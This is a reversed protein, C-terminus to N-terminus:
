NKIFSFTAATHNDAIIKASYVGQALHHIEIISKSQQIQESLITNGLIDNFVLILQNFQNEIQMDLILFDAAPNPYVQLTFGNMLNEVTSPQTVTVEMSSACENADIVTVTYVGPILDVATETTQGDSWVYTYPAAGSTVNVTATGPGVNVTFVPNANVTIYNDLTLLDEGLGNTVILTVDYVGPTDYYVLPNALNSTGPTGGPFLWSWSTAAISEDLFGIYTGACVETGTAEFAASPMTTVSDFVYFRDIAAEVLHGTAAFDSTIFKVQMNASPTIYDSIKILKNAWNTFTTLGNDLIISSSTIGNTLIMKLSDNPTGTGGNNFWWFDVTLYANDYDTLDFTPSVLTVTGDDVDDSGASGGGNGTVFVKDGFDAIVDFEPNANGPSYETGVPEGREWDGSVATSTNTWNFDFIFDDYYGTNLAMFIETDEDILIGAEKKTKHGWKGAYFNYTDVFVMEITFEGDANAITNYSIDTGELLVLANSIGEGTYADVVQGSVVFNPLPTLEVDLITTEGNIFSVADVTLSEYGVKSFTVNYSGADAIGTLYNGVINSSTSADPFGSVSVTVGFLNSGTEADTIVGELFCAQIYLPSLIFLGEEMDSVAITGSPFFPYVGWAGNFGDGSLPSTDYEGVKVMNTPNSVDTIVVGDRYYATVIFDGVVYTNHPISNTGPNARFQDLEQIDTLDSVDYSAVVANTVEDTTFLYNGDDTLWVNHTFVDPTTQTALLIPASKDSVDWVSFWGQYINGAWLTDGRVMGDHIYWDDVEGAFVPEMPDINANLMLDGGNALNSGFIHVYGNEDCKVTHGSTLGIGCETFNYDVTEPLGSLDICLLGGDAETVVYAYDDWVAVERWISNNGDIFHIEQPDTPNTIDVISTGDYTGVIVYEEGEANTYGWLNSLQDGGYDLHGLFDVNLQAFSHFATVLITLGFALLSKM